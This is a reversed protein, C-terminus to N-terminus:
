SYYEGLRELDIYLIDRGGRQWPKSFHRPVQLCTRAKRCLECVLGCLNIAKKKGAAAPATFLNMRTPM